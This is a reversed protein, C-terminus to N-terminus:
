TIHVRGYVCFNSFAAGGVAACSRLAYRCSFSLWALRCRDSRDASARVCSSSILRLAASVASASARRAAPAALLVDASLLHTEANTVMAKARSPHMCVGSSGASMDAWKPRHANGAVLLRV